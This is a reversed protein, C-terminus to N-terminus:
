KLNNEFDVDFIHTFANKLSADSNLVIARHVKMIAWKAKIDEFNNSRLEISNEFNYKLLTTNWENQNNDLSIAIFQYDPHKLKLEIIKKHAAILHSTLKETWFFIVTKKKLFSNSSLINRNKDILIVEPLTNGVKLLQIAYGIKQIENKKSKDTSYKNYIELFKQNNIM